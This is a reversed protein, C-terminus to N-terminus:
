ALIENYLRKKEAIVQSFFHQYLSSRRGDRRYSTNKVRKYIDCFVIRLFHTIAVYISYM